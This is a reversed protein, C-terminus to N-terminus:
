VRSLMGQGKTLAMFALNFDHTLPLPVSIELNVRDLFVIKEISVEMKAGLAKFSGLLSPEIVVMYRIMEKKECVPLSNLAGKISDQYAKVLGGTGLLIGGFYRTVVCTIEGLDSHLLINLMPQGATGHPEGDDSCGCYASSGAEYANYAFCNHRADAFEETIKLIFAKAEEVSSTRAVSTIFRSKKVILSTRHCTDKKLFPVKYVKNV